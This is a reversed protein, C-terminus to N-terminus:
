YCVSQWRWGWRTWVRSYCDDYYGYPYGAFVAFRNRFFRHDSRNRFAFRNFGVPRATAFRGPSSFAPRGVGGGGFHGGGFGGGSHFGGGGGHGGGGGGGHMASASVMSGVTVVAAATLAIAMKRMM